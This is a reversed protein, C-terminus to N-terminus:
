KGDSLQKKLSNLESEDKISIRNGDKKVRVYIKGGRHWTQFIKNDRRLARCAAALADAKPTLHESIYLNCDPGKYGIESAKLGKKSFIAELIRDKQWRNVLKVLINPPRGNSSHPNVPMRHAVDIDGVTLEINLAKTINMVREYTDEGHQHPVCSIVLNNRRLYSNTDEVEVDLKGIHEQVHDIAQHKEKMEGLLQKISEYQDSIFTQSTRLESIETRIPQLADSIARSVAEQLTQLNLPRECDERHCYWQAENNKRLDKYEEETLVTCKFHFRRLCQGECNVGKHSNKVREGCVVCVGAM